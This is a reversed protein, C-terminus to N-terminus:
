TPAARLRKLSFVGDLGDVAQPKKPHRCAFHDEFRRYCDAVFAKTGIVGSDTFYRTRYLLRDTATLEFGKQEEAEVVKEPISAGKGAPAVLGYVFKRYARLRQADDWNAFSRLGFDLSLFDGQNGTQVHYGLSSWRYDEPREVLGARVPNLDVYGLVNIVTDGDEVLVSKFREGWFFGHRRHTKNFWRSFSQKLDKVFESLSAWKERLLPIQGDLLERKSGEGYYRRFRHRIDDDSFAEGPQMRVLLHVHNGMVCFGIPDTFYVGCLHRLLRVLHDKEVDGLVFGALATRSIIHYTASEGQLLLRPIRAM